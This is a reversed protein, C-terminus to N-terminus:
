GTEGVPFIRQKPNDLHQALIEAPIEAELMATVLVSSHGEISRPSLALWNALPMRGSVPGFIREGPAVFVYATPTAKGSLNILAGAARAPATDNQNAVAVV